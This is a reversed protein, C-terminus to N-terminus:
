PTTDSKDRRDIVCSTCINSDVGYAQYVIFTDKGVTGFVEGCFYCSRPRSEPSEPSDAIDRPCL